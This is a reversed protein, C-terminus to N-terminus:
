HSRQPPPLDAGPEEDAYEDDDEDATTASAPEGAELEEATAERVALVECVFRLAMGALPHNGDLVVSEGALDTVMYVRPEEGGFADEVQMGAELGEGYRSRPEIRVLEADYDGYAQEPELQIRLTEGPARGELAEELAELLGGYGGHLYVYPERSTHIPEDQADCLDIALTVVSGSEITSL